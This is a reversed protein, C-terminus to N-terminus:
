FFWSTRPRFFALGPTDLIKLSAAFTKLAEEVSLLEDFLELKSTTTCGNKMQGVVEELLGLKM